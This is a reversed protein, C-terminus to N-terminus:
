EGLVSNISVESAQEKNNFRRVIIGQHGEQRMIGAYKWDSNIENALDLITDAKSSDVHDYNVYYLKSNEKFVLVTHSGGPIFVSFIFSHYGEKDLVSKAYVAFDECDGRKRAAFEEPTQWYEKQNFQVNDSMYRFEKLESLSHNPSTFALM